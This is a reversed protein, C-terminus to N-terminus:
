DIKSSFKMRTAQNSHDDMELFSLLHKCGKRVSATSTVYHMGVSHTKESLESKDEGEITKTETHQQPIAKMVEGIAARVDGSNMDSRIGSSWCEALFPVQLCFNCITLFDVVSLDESKREVVKVCLKLFNNRSREILESSSITVVGKMRLQPAKSISTVKALLAHWLIADAVHLRGFNDSYIINTFEPVRAVYSRLIESQSSLFLITRLLQQGVIVNLKPTASQVPHEDKQTTEIYVYMLILERFLGSQLLGRAESITLHAETCSGMSSYDTRSQVGTMFDLIQSMMTSVRLWSQSRDVYNISNDKPRVFAVCEVFDDVCEVIIRKVKAKMGSKSSSAMVINQNSCLDALSSLGICRAPSLEVEEKKNNAAYEGVPSAESRLLTHILKLYSDLAGYDHSSDVAFDRLVTLPKIFKTGLSDFQANGLFSLLLLTLSVLQNGADWEKWEKKGLHILSTTLESLLSEVRQIMEDLTLVKPQYLIKADWSFSSSSLQHELNEHSQSHSYRDNGYDYDDPDSEAAFIEKMSDDDTGEVLHGDDRLITSEATRENTAGKDDDVNVYTVDINNGTMSELNREKSSIDNIRMIKGEYSGLFSQIASHGKAMVEDSNADDDHSVKVHRQLVKCCYLPGMVFCAFALLSVNRRASHGTSDSMLLTEGRYPETYDVGQDTTVPSSKIDSSIGGVNHLHDTELELIGKVFRDCLGLTATTNDTIKTTKTTLLKPFSGTSDTGKENRYNTDLHNLSYFSGLIANALKMSIGDNKIQPNDYCLALYANEIDEKSFFDDQVNGNVGDNYHQQQKRENELLAKALEKAYAERFRKDSKQAKSM